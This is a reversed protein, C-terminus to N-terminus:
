FHGGLRLLAYSSAGGVILSCPAVVFSSFRRRRSAIPVVAIALTPLGAVLFYQWGYTFSRFAEPLSWALPVVICADGLWGLRWSEAAIIGIVLGAIPIAVVFPREHVFAGAFGASEDFGFVACYATLWAMLYMALAAWAWVSGDSLPRGRAAHRAVLFGMTLWFATGGGLYALVGVDQRLVQAAAGAAVGAAAAYAFWLRGAASRATPQALM